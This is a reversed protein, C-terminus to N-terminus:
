APHIDTVVKIINSFLGVPKNDKKYRMMYYRNEPQITKNPRTDEYPSRDDEGLKEWQPSNPDPLMGLPMGPASAIAETISFIYVGDMGARIWDLINQEPLATVKSFAPKVTNIDVPTKVKRIGLLEGDDEDWNPLSTIRRMERLVDTKAVGMLTDKTATSNQATQDDDYAKQIALPINTGHGAIAGIDAPLSGYKTGIAGSLKVGINVIYPAVESEVRPYFIAIQKPM